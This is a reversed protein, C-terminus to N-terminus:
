IGERRTNLLLHRYLLHWSIILFCIQRAHVVQYYDFLVSLCQSYPTTVESIPNTIQQTGLNYICM